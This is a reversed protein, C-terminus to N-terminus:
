AWKAKLRGKFPPLPIIAKRAEMSERELRAIKDKEYKAGSSFNFRSEVAHLAAPALWRELPIYESIEDTLDDLYPHNKTYILNLDMGADVASELVLVEQNGIGKPRVYWNRMIKWDHDSADSNNRQYLVQRLTRRNVGVPLTYETTNTATDLSTYDETPYKIEQLVANISEILTDLPFKPVIAAYKDGEAATTLTGYTFTGSTNDYDTIRAWETNTINLITGDIWFEDEEYRDADVLTTTSGGADATGSRVATLKRSLALVANFLTTM